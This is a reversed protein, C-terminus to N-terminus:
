AWNTTITSGHASDADQCLTLEQNQLEPLLQPLISEIYEKSNM